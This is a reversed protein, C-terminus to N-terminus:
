SEKLAFFNDLATRFTDQFVTYEDSGVTITDEASLLYGPVFKVGDLYGYADPTDGRMIRLTRLDYKGDVNPRLQSWGFGSGEVLGDCYPSVGHATIAGFTATPPIISKTGNWIRVWQGSSSRVLLGSTGDSGNPIYPVCMRSGINSYRPVSTGVGDTVNSGGIVLPYQWQGTSGYPLMLGLYCSLYVGAVKAVLVIRRPNVSLWYPIEDNWLPMAPLEGIIAGPESYFGAGTYGTYGEFIWGYIDSLPASYRKIAVYIAKDGSYDLGKLIIYNAATLNDVVVVWDGTGVAFAVLINLLDAYDTAHPVSTGNSKQFAM